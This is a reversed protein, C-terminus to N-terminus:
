RNARTKRRKRAASAKKRRRKTALFPPVNSQVPTAIGSNRVFQVLHKAVEWAMAATTADPAIGLGGNEALVEMVHTLSSRLKLRERYRTKANM